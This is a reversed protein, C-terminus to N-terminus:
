TLLPRGPKTRSRQNHTRAGPRIQTSAGPASATSLIISPTPGRPARGSPRNPVDVCVRPPRISTPHGSRDGSIGQRVRQFRVQTDLVGFQLPREAGPCGTRQLQVPRASGIALMLRHEDQRDARGRRTDMVAVLVGLREGAACVREVPGLAVAQQYRPAIGRGQAIFRRDLAGSAPDLRSAFLRTPRRSRGLRVRSAPDRRRLGRSSDSQSWSSRPTSNSLSSLQVMLTSAPGSMFTGTAPGSSSATPDCWTRLDLAGSASDCPCPSHLVRQVRRPLPSPCARLRQQQGLNRHITCGPKSPNHVRAFM